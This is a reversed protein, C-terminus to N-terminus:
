KRKYGKSIMDKIEQPISPNNQVAGLDTAGYHNMLDEVSGKYTPTLSRGGRGVMLEDNSNYKGGSIETKKPQDKM